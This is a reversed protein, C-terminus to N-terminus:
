ALGSPVHLIGCSKHNEFPQPNRGSTGIRGQSFTPNRFIGMLVTLTVLKVYLGHRSCNRSMPRWAQSASAARPSPYRALRGAFRDIM